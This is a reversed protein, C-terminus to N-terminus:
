VQFFDLSEVSPLFGTNGPMVVQSNLSNRYQKWSDEGLRCTKFILFPPGGPVKTRHNTLSLTRGGNLLVQQQGAVAGVLQWAGGSTSYLPVCNYGGTWATGLPYAAAPLVMWQAWLALSFCGTPVGTLDKKKGTKQSLMHALAWGQYMERSTCDFIWGM